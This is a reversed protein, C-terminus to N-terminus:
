IEAPPVQCPLSRVSCAAAGHANGIKLDPVEFNLFLVVNRKPTHSASKSTENYYVVGFAIAIAVLGAGLIAGPEAWLREFYQTYFHIAWFVAM